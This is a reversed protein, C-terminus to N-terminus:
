GSKAELNRHRLKFSLDSVMNRMVTYGIATDAACLREFDNRAIRYLTATKSACRITASREGYDILAMEGVLQGPGLFVMSSGTQPDDNVIVGVQGESVVYMHEGQDGQAFVIQGDTYSVVSSIAALKRLQEDSLNAFLEIGKLLDLLEM